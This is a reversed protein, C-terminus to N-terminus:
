ARLPRAIRGRNATPGSRSSGAGAERGHADARRADVAAHPGRDARPRGQGDRGRGAYGAPGVRAPHLDARGRDSRREPGLRGAADPRRARRATSCSARRSTPRALALESGILSPALREQGRGDPQHCALCINKYVEQGANFRQQEDPTLPPIPAAAGPKGPWEVRALVGDARTPSRRRHRGRGRLAGGARPEAPRAAAAARYAAVQPFAYAGGPGARGGPCTPCPAAAAGASRGTAGAPTGPMPAGLLAVEAGRLLASRQWAPRSEDAISALVDPDRTRGAAFSRRPLCRSRPRASRRRHTAADPKLRVQLLKELVAAEAGRVGSLAADM